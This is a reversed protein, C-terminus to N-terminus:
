LLAKYVAVANITTVDIRNKDRTLFFLKVETAMAGHCPHVTRHITLSATKYFSSQFSRGIM